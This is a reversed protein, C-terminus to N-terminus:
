EAFDQTVVFGLGPVAVVGIGVRRFRQDLINARHPDSSVLARHADDVTGAVVVNEGVRTGAPVVEALCRAFSGGACEHGIRGTRAMDQARGRAVSQLRVDLHLAPLGHELRVQNLLTLLRAEADPQVRADAARTSIVITAM